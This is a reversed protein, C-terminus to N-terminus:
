SCDTQGNKEEREGYGTLDVTHMKMNLVGTLHTHTPTCGEPKTELCRMTTYCLACLQLRCAEAQKSTTGLWSSHGM